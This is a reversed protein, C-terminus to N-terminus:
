NPVDASEAEVVMSEEEPELLFGAEGAQRASEEIQTVYDAHTPYLETLTEESFPTTSGFLSCLIDTSGEPPMGSLVAIPVDVDPTRIGGLTNGYEDKVPVGADDTTLPDGKPPATGDTMWLNLAHLAAKVVFHQPGDNIGECQIPSGAGENARLIHADAHATGAVEWTRLRETDAERARWFTFFGLVDSETQFQFVPEDIDDRIHVVSDGFGLGAENDFPVAGVGRSHIFFGDFVDSLPHVGNVYSVLRVASQSQGYAILRKPELGELVDVDGAGRVIQAARTYIDFSYADGPHSLSGYRDPDYEKLPRAADPLLAFGGGEVGTKQASVGVWAYGERLVEEWTYMYGPDGDAGGSVNLWEVIVTGNFEDADIPRRVIIRSKYPEASAETLTWKGDTTMESDLEYGTAEGEYFYEKEGYGHESLDVVSTSFPTGSIPGTVAVVPYDVPASSDPADAGGDGASVSADEQMRTEEDSSSDSDCAVAIMAAAALLWAGVPGYRREMTVKLKSRPKAHPRCRGPTDVANKRSTIEIKM